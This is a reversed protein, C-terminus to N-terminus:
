KKNLQYVFFYFITETKHRNVCLHYRLRLLFAGLNSLPKLILYKITESITFAFHTIIM